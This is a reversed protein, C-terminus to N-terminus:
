KGQALGEYHLRDIELTDWKDSKGIRKAKLSVLAIEMELIDEDMQAAQIELVDQKRSIDEALEGYSKTLAVVTGAGLLSFIVAPIIIKRAKKILEAKLTTFNPLTIKFM